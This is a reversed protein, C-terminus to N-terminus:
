PLDAATILGGTNSHGSYAASGSLALCTQFPDSASTGRLAGWTRKAGHTSPEGNALTKKICHAKTPAAMHEVQQHPACPRQGYHGERLRTGVLLVRELREPAVPNEQSEIGVAQRM